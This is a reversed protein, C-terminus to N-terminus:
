GTKQPKHEIPIPKAREREDLWDMMEQIITAQNQGASEIVNVTQRKPHIYGAVNRAHEGAVAYLREIEGEIYAM